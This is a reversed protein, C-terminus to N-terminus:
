PGTMTSLGFVKLMNAVRAFKFPLMMQAVRLNDQHALKASCAIDLSPVDRMRNVPKRNCIRHRPAHFVAATFLAERLRRWNPCFCYTETGGGTKIKAVGCTM